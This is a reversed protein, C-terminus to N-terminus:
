FNVGFNLFLANSHLTFDDNKSIDTVGLQYGMELYLLNYEIGCGLKFGMNARELGLWGYERDEDFTGVKKVLNKGDNAPMKYSGSIGYAFYTGIFPLVAIDDSVKFGYKIIVPIELNNYGISYKNKKAGRETYYLGSELFVPISSSLRIGIVGGLTIGVKANMDLADGSMTAVTGGIRVGYYMSEKDLEFGGSSFQAFSPVAMLAAVISIIIKKM